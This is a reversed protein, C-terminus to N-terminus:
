DQWALSQDFSLPSQSRSACGCMGVFGGEYEFSFQPMLVFTPWCVPLQWIFPIPANVLNLL